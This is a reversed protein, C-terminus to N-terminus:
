TTHNYEQGYISVDGLRGGHEKIFRESQVFFGGSGMAPDYVRGAFPQLMEVILSVIAKPTYFQGGKKGEALAFQGLFYEYVHGLIDKAQLNEHTFPIESLLNILEILKAQDIQLRGYQKNLIGKLKPNDKEIAELADDILRGVSRFTYTSINGNKIGIESGPPLTANDRLTQWRALQPVWFVNKETYYDRIELESAVEGQYEEDSDYEQRDLFYDHKPDKFQEILEQRRIDFADSVYKIFLLGLVAHKYQAADLTSRLKDAATWLKKDLADLFKQEKDSM